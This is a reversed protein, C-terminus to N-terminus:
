KRYNYAKSRGPIWVNSLNKIKRAKAELEPGSPIVCDDFVFQALAEVWYFDPCSELLNCVRNYKDGTMQPPVKLKRCYEAEIQRYKTLQDYFAYKSANLAKKSSDLIYDLKNTVRYDNPMGGNSAPDKPNKPTNNM